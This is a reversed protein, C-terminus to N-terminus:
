RLRSPQHRPERKRRLLSAPLCTKAWMFSVARVRSVL